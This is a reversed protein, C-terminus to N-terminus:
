FREGMGAVFGLVTLIGHVLSLPISYNRKNLAVIYMRVGPNESHFKRRWRHHRSFFGTALIKNVVKHNADIYLRECFVDRAYTNKHTCVPSLGQCIQVLYELSIGILYLARQPLYSLGPASYEIYTYMLCAPM